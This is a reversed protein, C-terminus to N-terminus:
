SQAVIGTARLSRSLRKKQRGVEVLVRVIMKEAGVRAPIKSSALMPMMMEGASFRVIVFENGIGHLTIVGRIGQRKARLCAWGGDGRWFEAVKKKRDSVLVVAGAQIGLGTIQQRVEGGRGSVLVFNFVARLLRQRFYGERRGGGSKDTRMQPAVVLTAKEIEAIRRMRASRQVEDCPRLGVSIEASAHDGTDTCRESEQLAAAEPSFGPQTRKIAFADLLWAEVLRKTGIRAKRSIRGQFRLGAFGPIDTEFLLEVVAADFERRVIGIIPKLVDDAKAIEQLGVRIEAAPVEVGVQRSGAAHIKGPLRAEAVSDKDASAIGEVIRSKKFRLIGEKIGRLHRPIVQEAPRDVRARYKHTGSVVTQVPREASIEATDTCVGVEDIRRNGIIRAVRSEIGRDM